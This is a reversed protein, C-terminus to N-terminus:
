ETDASKKAQTYKRWVAADWIEFHDDIGVLVIEQHLGAFQALKETITMKGGKISVKVTQAYYLRKFTKIDAARAPSKDLKHSLRDLHAQNTLWLCRDSGPSLLITDCNGLQTLVAKPLLTSKHDDLNVVYTGTLPLVGKAKPAPRPRLVPLPRVTDSEDSVCADGPLRVVTGAPITADAKYIPNLKHIDTWRESAGLTRRSLSKFTEGRALKLTVVPGPNPALPPEGPASTEIKVEVAKVPKVASPTPVSSVTAPAPPPVATGSPPPVPAPTEPAPTPAPPPPTNSPLKDAIPPLPAGPSTSAPILIPRPDSGVPPLPAPGPVESKVPLVETSGQLPPLPAAKSESAPMDGIKENLPPLPAPSPNKTKSTPPEPLEILPPGDVSTEQASARNGDRIKCVLVLGFLCLLGGLAMWGYRSRRNM